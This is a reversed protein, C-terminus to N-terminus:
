HLAHAISQALPTTPRGILHRLTGSTDSLGGQAAGVDADVLLRAFPAPVGAGTLMGSTPDRFACHRVSESESESM